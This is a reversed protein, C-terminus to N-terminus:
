KMARFIRKHESYFFHEEGVELKEFLTGDVLITGLLTSEAEFNINKM